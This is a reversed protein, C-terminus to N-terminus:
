MQDTQHDQLKYSTLTKSARSNQIRKDSTLLHIATNTENQPLRSASGHAERSREVISALNDFICRHLKSSGRM